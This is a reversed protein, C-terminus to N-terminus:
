ENDDERRSPPLSSLPTDIQLVEDDSKTIVIQKTESDNLLLTSLNDNVDPLQNITSVISLIATLILTFKEVLNSKGEKGNVVINYFNVDGLVSQFVEELESTGSIKYNEIADIIKSLKSLLYEKTKEELESNKVADFLNLAKQKLSELENSDIVGLETEISVSTLFIGSLTENSLHYLSQRFLSSPAMDSFVACISDEWFLFRDIDSSYKSSLIKQRIKHPLAIMESYRYLFETNSKDPSLIPALIDEVSIQANNLEKYSKKATSLIHHLRKALNENM